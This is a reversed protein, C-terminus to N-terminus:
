CHGVILWSGAMSRQLRHAAHLSHRANSKRPVLKPMWQALRHDSQLASQMRNLQGDEDFAAFYRSDGELFTVPSQCLWPLSCPLVCPLSLQATLWRLAM